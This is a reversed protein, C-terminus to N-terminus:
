KNEYMSDWWQPEDKLKKDFYALMTNWLPIGGHYKWCAIGEYARKM